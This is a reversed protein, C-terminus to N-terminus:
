LKKKLPIANDAPPDGTPLYGRHRYFREANVSSDLRVAQIGRDRMLTEAVSLLESGIGQEASCPDIYLGDIYDGRVAVWGVLVGELEAIWIETERFRAEMGELTMKTAWTFAQTVSMGKSALKLISERRVEWLRQIDDFTAQRIYPQMQCAKM